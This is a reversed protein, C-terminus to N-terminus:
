VAMAPPAMSAAATPPPRATMIRAFPIAPACSSRFSRGRPRPRLPREAGARAGSLGHCVLRLTKGEPTRSGPRRGATRSRDLRPPADRRAACPYRDLGARDHSEGKASRSSPSRAALGDQRYANRLPTKPRFGADELLRELAVLRDRLKLRIGIRLSAKDPGCLVWVDPRALAHAWLAKEGEDLMAIEGDRILAAAREADNVQHVAKLGALLVKPDVQKEPRRRQFGTHREIVANTDVLVPGRWRAM